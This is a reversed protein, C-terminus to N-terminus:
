KRSKGTTRSLPHSDSPYRSKMLITIGGRTTKTDPAQSLNLEYDYGPFWAFTILTPPKTSLSQYIVSRLAEKMSPPLRELYEVWSDHLKSDRSVVMSLDLPKGPAFSERHEVTQKIGQRGFASNLESLISQLMPM